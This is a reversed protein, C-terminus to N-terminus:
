HLSVMTRFLLYDPREETVTRKRTHQDGADLM